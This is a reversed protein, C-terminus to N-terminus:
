LSLSILGSELYRCIHLMLLFFDISVIYQLLVSGGGGIKFLLCLFLIIKLPTRSVNAKDVCYHLIFPFYHNDEMFYFGTGLALRFSTKVSGNLLLSIFIKLCLVSKCQLFIFPSFSWLCITLLVLLLYVPLDLNIRIVNFLYSLFFGLVSRARCFACFVLALM